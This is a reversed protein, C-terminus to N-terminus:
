ISAKVRTVRLKVRVRMRVMDIPWVKNYYILDLGDLDGFYRERLKDNVIVNIRNEKIDELHIDNETTSM